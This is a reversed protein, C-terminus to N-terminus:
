NELESLIMTAYSKSENKIIEQISQNNKILLENEGTKIIPDNVFVQKSPSMKDASTESM